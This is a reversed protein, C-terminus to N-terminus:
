VTVAIMGFRATSEKESHYGSFRVWGLVMSTYRPFSLIQLYELLRHIQKGEPPLAM